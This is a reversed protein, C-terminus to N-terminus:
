SPSVHASHYNINKHVIMSQLEPSYPVGLVPLEPQAVQQISSIPKHENNSKDEDNNQNARNEPPGRLKEM